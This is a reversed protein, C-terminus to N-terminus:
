IFPTRWYSSMRSPSRGPCLPLPNTWVPARTLAEHRKMASYYDVPPTQWWTKVSENASPCKPCKWKPQQSNHQRSCSHTRIQKPGEAPITPSNKVRNEERRTWSAQLQGEEGTALNTRSHGTAQPVLLVEQLVQRTVHRLLDCCETAVWCNLLQGTMSGPSPAWSHPCATGDTMPKRSPGWFPLDYGQLSLHVRSDM